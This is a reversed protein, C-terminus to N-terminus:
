QATVSVKLFFLRVERSMELPLQSCHISSYSCGAEQDSICKTCRPSSTPAIIQNTRLENCDQQNCHIGRHSLSLSLSYSPPLPLAIWLPITLKDLQWSRCHLTSCHKASTRALLKTPSEIIFWSIDFLVPWSILVFRNATILVGYLSTIGRVFQNRPIPDNCFPLLFPSCCMQVVGMDFIISNCFVKQCCTGQRPITQSLRPCAAHLCLLEDMTHLIPQSCIIQFAVFARWKQLGRSINVLNISLRKKKWLVYQVAYDNRLNIFSFCCCKQDGLAKFSNYNNFKM